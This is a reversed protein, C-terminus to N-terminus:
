VPVKIFYIFREGFATIRKGLLRMGSSSTMTTFISADTNIFGLRHLDAFASKIIDLTVEPFVIPFFDSFGGQIISASIGRDETYEDPSYLFNLIRIHLSTLNNVLHLYYIKEDESKDTNELIASNILIARFQEIKEKQPNFSVNQFCKEFLFAYDETRLYELDVRDSLRRLDDAVHYTFKELRIFHSSPIYDSILSAIGGGWPITSLVAKIINILVDGAKSAGAIEEIKKIIHKEDQKKTGEIDM